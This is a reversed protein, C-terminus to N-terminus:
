YKGALDNLVKVLEGVSELNVEHQLDKTPVVFLRKVVEFDGKRFRIKIHNVDAVDVLKKKGM